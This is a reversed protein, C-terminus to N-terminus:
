IRVLRRRRKESALWETTREWGGFPFFHLGVNGLDHSQVGTELGEIVESPDQERMAKLISGAQNKLGKLSAGVGCLMAFKILKAMSTVGAVGFRIPVDVGDRRVNGAWATMVGGDFAFQTVLAPELGLDRALTVKDKIVTRLTDAPINPHGEPHGAFFVRKIGSQKVVPHTLMESACHMAPRGSSTNGGIMLVTRVGAEGLDALHRAYEDVSAFNRAGLHCVPEAGNARLMRAASVQLHLPKGGIHTVFVLSGQPLGSRELDFSEVQEPLLEISIDNLLNVDSQGQASGSVASSGAAPSTFGTM